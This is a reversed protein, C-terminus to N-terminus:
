HNVIKDVNYSNVTQHIFFRGKETWVTQMSTRQKGDSGTYTYTKTKTFGKNQHRSYLVWANDIKHQVGSDHLIKNLTVASMGLEKAILTTAYATKSDLVKEFYLVKPAQVKVEQELLLTREEAELAMRLLDLRSLEPIAAKALREMELFYNRATEGKESMSLMALKKAFDITLAFEKTSRGGSTKAMMAFVIYDEGEIAFKNDIINTTYWRKWHTNNYGLFNYLERASVAHGLDKNEQINIISDM